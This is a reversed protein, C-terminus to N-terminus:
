ADGLRMEVGDKSAVSLCLSVKNLWGVHALSEPARTRSALQLLGVWRHSKLENM